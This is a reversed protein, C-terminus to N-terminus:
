LWQESLIFAGGSIYKNGYVYIQLIYLGFQKCTVCVFVSLWASELKVPFAFAEELDSSHWDTNLMYIYTHTYIQAWLVSTQHFAGLAQPDCGRSSTRGVGLFAGRISYWGLQTRLSLTKPGKHMASAPLYKNQNILWVCRSGFVPFLEFRLSHLCDVASRLIALKCSLM